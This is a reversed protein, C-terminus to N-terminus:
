ERLPQKLKDIVVKRPDRSSAKMKREKGFKDQTIANGMHDLGTFMEM